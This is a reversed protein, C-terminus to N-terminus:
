ARNYRDLLSNFLMLVSVCLGCTALGAISHYVWQHHHWRAYQDVWVILCMGILCGVVVGNFLWRRLHSAASVLFFVILSAVSGIFVPILSGLLLLGFFSEADQGWWLFVFGLQFALLLFLLAVTTAVSLAALFQMTRTKM